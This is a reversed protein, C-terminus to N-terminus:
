PGEALPPFGSELVGLQLLEAMVEGDHGPMLHVAPEREALDHLAQFQRMVQQRDEGILATMFLPRERLIEINRRQWAVDGLLLLEEGDDRQVYVMQSGPTHGPAKLLVLGPALAQIQEYDLPVYGEFADGPLRLPRMRDEHALQEATLVTRPLLLKLDPHQLLGGIHDFHEHTIVILEAANMARRMRALAEDDFDGVMVSPMGETSSMATDIVISYDPYELLYSYVPMQTARWPEGAMVMAESFILTAVREVRVARPRAGPLRAAEQRLADIDLRYAEGEPAPSHLLLPYYALAAILLLALVIRALIRM